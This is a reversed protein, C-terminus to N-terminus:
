TGPPSTSPRPRAPWIIEAFILLMAILLGGIERPVGSQIQLGTLAGARLGGLLFAFVMVGLPHLQGVFAVVLGDFNDAASFQTVLRYHVGLVEIAGALGALAGSLMAARVVPWRPPMGAFLAFRPAQGAMRQELGPSTRWLLLWVGLAALWAVLLGASLKTGAVLPPLQATAAIRPLWFLRLVVAALPNLLLTVIIESVGLRERLVAPGWGWAAGALAGAALAAAPHLGPVLRLHGGVWAAAGAGLLMQGAQGLSLYGARLAVTASLGGLVLPISFQLATLTACFAGAGRCGFGAALLRPYAALPNAGALLMLGAGAALSALITLAPRRLASRLRFPARDLM